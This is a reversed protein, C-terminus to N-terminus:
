EREYAASNSEINYNHLADYDYRSMRKKKKLHEKSSTYGQYKKMCLFM